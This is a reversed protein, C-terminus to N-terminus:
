AMVRGGIRKEKLMFTGEVKVPYVMFDVEHGSKLKILVCDCLAAGPGFCCEQNDRVLIFLKIGSLKTGPLMYGRLSIRQGDLEEIETTLYDRSFEVDEEMEFAIDEFTLDLTDASDDQARANLGPAAAIITSILLMLLRPRVM